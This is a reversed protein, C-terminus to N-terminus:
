QILAASATSYPTTSRITPWVAAEAAASRASAATLSVLSPMLLDNLPLGQSAVPRPRISPRAPGLRLSEFHPYCSARSPPSTCAPLWLRSRTSSRTTGSFRRHQIPREAAYVLAGASYVARGLALLLLTPGSMCDVLELLAAVAIWGVRLHLVAALWRPATVWALNIGALSSVWVTTLLVNGLPRPLVMLGMSTYTGAILIFITPHHLRRM